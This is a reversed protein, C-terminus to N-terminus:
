PVAAGHTAEPAVTLRGPRKRTLYGLWEGWSWALVMLTLPGLARLFRGRLAPSPLAKRGMRGLLLLPLTPALISYFLRRAGSTFELRTCGFLRGFAYREYVADALRVHRRMRVPANSVLRLPAHRARLAENVATEHFLEQWLEGIAVLAERRYAVNCVTLSPSRGPTVPPAYRFFDVFYFAFDTASAGPELVVTGGVAAEGPRLAASLRAVWDPGPVCHDETLLVVDGRSEAVARSALELPTRQGVNAVLRAEPYLAALDPVDTLAPDYAVVVDFPAAGEQARLADLCRRLHAAGCIGVVAVTVDAATSASAAGRRIGTQTGDEVGM